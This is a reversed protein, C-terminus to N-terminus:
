GVIGGGHGYLQRGEDEFRSIGLGYSSIRKLITREAVLTTMAAYSEESIIPGSSGLGGVMLMRLYRASDDSTSALCGDATATEIWTAPV